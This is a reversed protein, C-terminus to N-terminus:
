CLLARVKYLYSLVTVKAVSNKGIGLLRHIFDELLLVIREALFLIPIFSTLSNFILKNNINQM